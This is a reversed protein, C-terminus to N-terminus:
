REAELQVAAAPLNISFRRVDPTAALRELLGQVPDRQARYDDYDLPVRHGARLDLPEDGAGAFVRAILEADDIAGGYGARVDDLTPEDKTQAELERARPRDLIRARVEADMATPAEAGWRGLAFGIIEDTVTAYRDGAVLNLVAQSGVFQSLPTVMIPYGLDARVRAIEELVEPLRDRIRLKELQFALNSIMGGPTQHTYLTEDYVQPAGAPLDRTRAVLGLHESARRLRETELRVEHGRARLSGVLTFVDPLSSGEALPPLSTHLVEIGLEVAELCVWQALGNTCHMHFEVPIGGANELVVPIVARAADPTLLGGVDKFCLRLPQLAAIQATREAYYEVTHRPSVSYIVNAVTEIGKSSMRAMTRRLGEADNWPDSARTIRVGMESLRELFLDQVCKPTPAFASHMSGHLRLPTREFTRTGIELWEWPDEHLDRVMRAIQASAVFFEIGDFGAADLDAIAPAMDDVSMRCAWLSQNGDRLTTDVIRVSTM